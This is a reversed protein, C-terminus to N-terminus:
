IKELWQFSRVDVGLFNLISEGLFLFVIMILFSVVTAQEARVYGVRMKVQILVPISGLIDIVAFLIMSVSLIDHLNLNM